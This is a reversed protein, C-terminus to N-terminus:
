GAVLEIELRGELKLALLAGTIREAEARSLVNRFTPGDEIEAEIVPGRSVWRVLTTAGNVPPLHMPLTAKVPWVSPARDLIARLEQATPRTADPALGEEPYLTPPARLVDDTSDDFLYGYRTPVRGSLVFLLVVAEDGGPRQAHLIRREGPLSRLMLRLRPKVVKARHEVRERITARLEGLAALLTADAEAIQAELAAGAAALRAELEAQFGAAGPRALAAAAGPPQAARLAGLLLQGQDELRSREYAFRTQLQSYASRLELWADYSTELSEVARVLAVAQAGARRAAGGLEPVEVLSADEM